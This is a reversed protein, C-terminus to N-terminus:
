RCDLKNAVHAGAHAPRALCSLLIGLPRVGESLLAEPFNFDSLPALTRGFCSGLSREKPRCPRFRRRFSSLSPCATRFLLHLRRLCLSRLSLHPEPRQVAAHKGLELPQRLGGALDRPEAPPAAPM